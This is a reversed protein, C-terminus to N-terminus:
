IVFRRLAQVIAADAPTPQLLRGVTATFREGTVGKGAVPKWAWLTLPKTSSSSWVVIIPAEVIAGAGLYGQFAGTAIAMTSRGAHPAEHFGKMQRAGISWYFGPVWCKSDLLWVRNGAVVAHDIDAKMRRSPMQLSHLM